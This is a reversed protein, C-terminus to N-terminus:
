RDLLVNLRKLRSILHDQPIFSIFVGYMMSMTSIEIMSHTHSVYSQLLGIVLLRIIYAMMSIVLLQIVIQVLLWLNSKADLLGSSEVKKFIYNLLNDIANGAFIAFLFFVTNYVVFQMFVKYQFLNAVHKKIGAESM